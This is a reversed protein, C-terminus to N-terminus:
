QSSYQILRKYEDWCRGLDAGVDTLGFLDNIWAVLYICGTCASNVTDGVDSVDPGWRLGRIVNTSDAEVHRNLATISPHAADNSLGRYYTDYIETLGALRAAEVISVPRADIGSEDIGTIFRSLKELQDASLGSDAPLRLLAKAIKRRRDADDVVLM